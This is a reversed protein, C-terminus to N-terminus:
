SVKCMANSGRQLPGDTQTPDGHPSLNEHVRSIVATSSFFCFSLRFNFLKLQYRDHRKVWRDHFAYSDYYTRESVTAVALDRPNGWVSRCLHTSYVFYWYNNICWYCIDFDYINWHLKASSFFISMTPDDFTHGNQCNHTWNMKKGMSYTM